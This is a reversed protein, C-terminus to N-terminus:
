LNEWGLQNFREYVAYPEVYALDEFWRCTAEFHELSSPCKRMWIGWDDDDTISFNTSYEDTLEFYNYYLRVSYTNKPRDRRFERPCRTDYLWPIFCFIYRQNEVCSHDKYECPQHLWCDWEYGDIFPKWGTTYEKIRTM